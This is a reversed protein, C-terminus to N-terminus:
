RVVSFRLTKALKSDEYMEVRYKGVPFGGKPAPLYFTGVSGPGPLTESGETLKKNKTSIGAADEAIWVVRLKEGKTGTGDTWALYIKPITSPFNTTPSNGKADTALSAALPKGSAVSSGPAPTPRRIGSISNM